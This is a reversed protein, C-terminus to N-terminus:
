QTGWSGKALKTDELGERFVKDVLGEKPQAKRQATKYTQSEEKKVLNKYHKFPDKGKFKKQARQKSPTVYEPNAWLTKGGLLGSYVRQPNLVFRPGIELM